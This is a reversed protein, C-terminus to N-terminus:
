NKNLVLEKFKPLSECWECFEHWEKLRHDKRQNYITKLQRYNTTLSASLCFGCPLSAVARRWLQKREEVTFNVNDKAKNYEDILEQARNLIIDDTDEVCQESLRFKTLCHMTSSSSIFDIFHYRQLQKWMYLPAKLDFQVIIGTLFQDHGEGIKTNGLNKATVESNDIVTRMPNGSAKIAKDLGYAKGNNITINSM